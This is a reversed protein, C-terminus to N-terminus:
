KSGKVAAMDTVDKTVVHAVAKLAVKDIKASATKPMKDIFEVYRPVKYASLTRQLEEIITEATLGRGVHENTRSIVVKVEEGRFPDPVPIAAVESVGSIAMVTAEIEAASINEGSRRIVDKIRGLMYYYGNGDKRFLDGTRFWEGSFSAETAAPNRYYGSYLGTGSVWLEGPEGDPVDKGDVVIRCRRFPSPLGCSGSGVKTGDSVPMSLASGIETMGYIERIPASFRAQTSAHHEKAMGYTALWKLKSSLLRADDGLTAAPATITCFDIDNDLIRDYLRSLSPRPAVNLTAGVLIGMVAKWLSGMYVLPTDVLINEPQPGILSRSTALVLWYRHSLMCGKPVGSSGSTFLIGAIDDPFVAESQVTVVDHVSIMDAWHLAGPLGADAVGHVIIQSNTLSSQDPLGMVTELFANDVLLFDVDTERTLRDLEVSTSSTNIMVGIAGLRCLALWCILLAPVNPMMIGFKSERRVGLKALSQSCVLTLRQFEAYTLITGDGDIARWFTKDGHVETADDFATHINPPLVSAEAEVWSSPRRNSTSAVIM